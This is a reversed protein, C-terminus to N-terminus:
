YHFPNIMLECMFWCVLVSSYVFVTLWESVPNFFRLEFWMWWPYEWLIWKWETSDLWNRTRWTALFLQFYRLFPACQLRRGSKCPLPSSSSPSSPSSNTEFEECQPPKIVAICIQLQIQMILGVQPTIRWQCCVQDVVNREHHFCFPQPEHRMDRTTKKKNSKLRSCQKPQLREGTYLRILFSVPYSDHLNTQIGAMFKDQM